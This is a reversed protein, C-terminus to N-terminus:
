FATRTPHDTNLYELGRAALEEALEAHAPGGVWLPHWASFVDQVFGPEKLEPTKIGGGARADRPVRRRHRRRAEENRAGERARAAGTACRRWSRPGAREGQHSDLRHRE